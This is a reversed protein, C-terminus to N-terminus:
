NDLRVTRDLLPAARGSLAPSQVVRYTRKKRMASRRMASFVPWPTTHKM